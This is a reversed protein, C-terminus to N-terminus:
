TKGKEAYMENKFNSLYKKLDDITTGKQVNSINLTAEFILSKNDENNASMIGKEILALLESVLIDPVKCGEKWYVDTVPKANKGGYTCMDLHFHEFVLTTVFSKKASGLGTFSKTTKQFVVDTLM